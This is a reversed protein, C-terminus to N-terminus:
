NTITVKGGGLIFYDIHQVLEDEIGSQEIFWNYGFHGTYEDVM